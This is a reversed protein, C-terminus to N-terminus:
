PVVHVITGVDAWYFLWRADETRMNVCGHSMPVGFNNHWYTGHIGYDQYFYMTYPVNPLYYGPGSMDTSKLKAWIRFTGTVTVTPWRGTSVVFERVLREGELAYLRQESLDVLIWRENAQVQPPPHFARSAAATPTPSPTNTPTPTPTPTSTPTPTPTHTPTPTPTSTPTPTPTNTAPLWPTPTPTTTGPVLLVQETPTPPAPQAWGVTSGYFLSWALFAILVFGGASLFWTASRWLTRGRDAELVQPGASPAADQDIPAGRRRHAQPVQQLALARAAVQNRPNLRLAHRLYAKRAQPHTTLLGLIAWSVDWTPDLRVARRAWWRAAARDRRRLAARVQQLAQWALRRPHNV